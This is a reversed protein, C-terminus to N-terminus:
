ETPFRKDELKNDLVVFKSACFRYKQKNNQVSTFIQREFYPILKINNM